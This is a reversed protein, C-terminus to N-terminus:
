VERWRSLVKSQLSPSVSTEVVRRAIAEAVKEVRSEIEAEFRAKQAAVEAQAAKLIQQAERHAAEVRAQAEDTAAAIATRTSEMVQHREHQRQVEYATQSHRAESTLREAEALHQEIESTRQGKAALMPKYLIEKLAFHLLLFLILEFCFATFDFHLSQLTSFVSNM